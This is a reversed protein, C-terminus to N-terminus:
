QRGKEWVEHHGPKKLESLLDFDSLLNVEEVAHIVEDTREVTVVQAPPLASQGGGSWILLAGLFLLAAVGLPLSPSFAPLWDFWGPAPTAAIRQRLRANFWPSPAPAEWQGLWESVLGFDRARAACDACARLHADMVERQRVPLKGDLYPIWLTELEHCNM